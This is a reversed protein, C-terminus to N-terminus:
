RVSKIKAAVENLRRTLEVVEAETKALRGVLDDVRKEQSKVEGQVLEILAKNASSDDAECQFFSLCISFAIVAVLLRAM